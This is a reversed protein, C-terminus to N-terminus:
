WTQTSTKWSKLPRILSCRKKRCVRHAPSQRDEVNPTRRTQIRNRGRVNRATWFKTVPLRSKAFNVLSTSFKKLSSAIFTLTVRLKTITKRDEERSHSDSFKSPWSTRCDAAIRRASGSTTCNKSLWDTENCWSSSISFSSELGSVRGCTARAKPSNASKKWNKLLTQLYYYYNKM